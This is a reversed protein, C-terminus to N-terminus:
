RFTIKDTKNNIKLLYSCKELFSAMNTETIHEIMKHANLNLYTEGADNSNNFFSLEIIKNDYLQLDITCYHFYYHMDDSIVINELMENIKTCDTFPMWNQLEDFCVLIDHFGDNSDCIWMNRHIDRKFKINENDFTKALITYDDEKLLILRM